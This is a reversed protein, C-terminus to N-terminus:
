RSSKITRTRTGNTTHCLLSRQSLCATPHDTTLTRESLECVVTTLSIHWYNQVSNRSGSKYVLILNAMKLDDPLEAEDLSKQFTTCSCRSDWQAYLSITAAVLRRTWSTRMRKKARPTAGSVRRTFLLTYTYWYIHSCHTQSVIYIRMIGLAVPIFIVSAAVNTLTRFFLARTATM